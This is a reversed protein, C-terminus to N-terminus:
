VEKLHTEGWESKAQPTISNWFVESTARYLSSLKDKVLEVDMIPNDQFFHIHDIDLIGYTDAEMNSWWSQGAIMVACNNDPEMLNNPLVKRIKGEQPQIEEFGVTMESGLATQSRSMMLGQLTTADPLMELRAPLMGEHIYDSLKSGPAPAIVDVYRLGIRKLFVKKTQGVTEILASLIEFYKTELDEFTRYDTTKLIISGESVEILEKQSASRFVRRPTIIEKPASPQNGEGFKASIEFVRRESRIYDQFGLDIMRSQVADEIESNSLKLEPCRSIELHIVTHVLPAKELIKKV